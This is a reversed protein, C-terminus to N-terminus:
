VAIGERQRGVELELALAHSCARHNAGAPCTCLRGAPSYSVSYTDNDGDVLGQGAGDGTWVVTVRGEMILRIAKEELPKM